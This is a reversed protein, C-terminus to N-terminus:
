TLRVKPNVVAYLLDVIINVTVFITAIILTTSQIIPFDRQNVANVLWKGIGPWSFTTETLIAGAFLTGLMLGIVTIVPMLANKLAHIFIVQKKTCGKAKATRVYDEKMVEIMSARTMRAIIAMPITGLAFAPLILHKLVDWLAEYDQMLITDIIYFGTVEDIDFEYGLRGSVPLWGLNVSFFYILMLGLWFVPMSVGALATSMSFYDFFSYRKVASVIGALLGVITAFTLAVLSLEVTAPFREMFEVIVPEGSIISIGFDGQIADTIFLFYQELLPKNLGMQERLADVAEKNAHEGLMVLAPDGPALHVMSFVLVSVGLLTPIAWLLRKIIYSIM